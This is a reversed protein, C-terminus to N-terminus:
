GARENAHVDAEGNSNRLLVPFSVPETISEVV